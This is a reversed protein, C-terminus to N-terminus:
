GTNCPPMCVEKQAMTYVVYSRSKSIPSLNTSREVTQTKSMTLYNQKNKRRRRNISNKCNVTKESM